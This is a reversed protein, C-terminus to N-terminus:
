EAAALEHSPVQRPRLLRMTNWRHLWGVSPMGPVASSGTMSSEPKHQKERCRPASGVILRYRDAKRKIRLDTVPEDFIARIVGRSALAFGQHAMFAQLEHAYAWAEPDGHLGVIEWAKDRPFLEVIITRLDDDAADSLRRQPQDPVPSPVQQRTPKFLLKWGLAVLMAASLVITTWRGWPGFGGSSSDPWFSIMLMALAVGAAALKSWDRIKM